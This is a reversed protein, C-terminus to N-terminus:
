GSTEDRGSYDLQENWDTSRGEPILDFLNWLPEITGVRRPDQDQETARPARSRVWAYTALISVTLAAAVAAPAVVWAAVAAVALQVAIVARRVPEAMSDFRRHLAYLGAPNRVRAGTLVALGRTLGFAAGIAVGAWPQGTLAGLVIMLPVAATMVYTTVGAGIQWGFGGGYVWSRYNSLWDENVQRRLFPPGSGLVRGDVLAAGISAVVVVTLATSESPGTAAVLAAGLAILAGLTLGGLVAGAVFWAATRGFKQQRGAEAVPTIQSLMSLGCPSWTSRVAAALAVVVGLTVIVYEEV